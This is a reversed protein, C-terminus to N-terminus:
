RLKLVQGVQIKNPDKIGNLQVLYEVKAGFRRAIGGLTDGSKVTYTAAPPAQPTSSGKVPHKATAREVDSMKAANHIHDLHQANTAAGYFSADKRVYDKVYFGDDTDFPTTHIMELWHASDAYVLAAADRRDVAGQNTMVSSYDLAGRDDTAGHYDNAGSRFNSTVYMRSLLADPLVRELYLIMKKGFEDVNVGPLVKLKVTSPSPPTTPAPNTNGNPAHLRAWSAPGVKGDVQLGNSRQFRKVAEVTEAEYLGDAWARNTTGAFGLDILKNQINWRIYTRDSAPASPHGGHSEAPGNIDGFYHGVPLPFPPTGAPVPPTSTPPTVPPTGNAKRAKYANWSEGSVVSLINEGAATDNSHKRFFSLHIHWLHSDDSSVFSWAEGYNNHSRGVVDRGNTTGYFERLGDLRNDDPHEAADILRQTVTKMMSDNLSWDVASAANGDGLKDLPLTVSYNGSNNENRSVHYGGDHAADGVIGSLQGGVRVTMERGFWVLAAPAYTM